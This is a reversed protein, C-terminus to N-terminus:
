EREFRHGGRRLRAVGAGTPDAREIDLDASGPQGLASHVIQGAAFASSRAGSRRERAASGGSSRRAQDDAIAARTADNLGHCAAAVTWSKM